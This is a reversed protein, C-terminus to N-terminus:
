MDSMKMTKKMNATNHKKRHERKKNMKDKWDVKSTIYKRSGDRIKSRGGSKMMEDVMRRKKHKKMKIDNHFQTSSSHKRHTKGELFQKQFQVDGDDERQKRSAKRERKKQVKRERRETPVAMKIRLERGKFKRFRMEKRCITVANIADEKTEFQVFAVGCGILTRKDRIIRINVINGLKQFTPTSSRETKENSEDKDADVRVRVGAFHKRLDEENIIFPLNGVFITSNFDDAKKEDRDVRLHFVESFDSNSIPHNNLKLAEEVSSADAFLIYANKNNKQNGIMKGKVVNRRDTIMTSPAISRFWIKEIKGCNKFVYWLKKPPLDVPINGVFVTRKKREAIQVASLDENGPLNEIDLDNTTPEVEADNTPEVEVTKNEEVVEEPVEVKTEEVPQKQTKAPTEGELISLNLILSCHRFKFGKLCAPCTIVFRNVSM